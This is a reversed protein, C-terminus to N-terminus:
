PMEVKETAASPSSAVLNTILSSNFFAGLLVPQAPGIILFRAKINVALCAQQHLVRKL